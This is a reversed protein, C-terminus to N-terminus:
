LALGMVPILTERISISIIMHNVNTWRSLQQRLRLIRQTNCANNTPYVLIKKTM